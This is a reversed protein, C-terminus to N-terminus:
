EEVAPPAGPAFPINQPEAQPEDSSFINFMFMVAIYVAVALVLGSYFVRGLLPKDWKLHMFVYAVTFFKVAMLIMLLTIVGVNSDGGWSWLPFDPVESVVIEIATIVALFVATMVYLKDRPYAEVAGDLVEAPITHDTPEPTVTAM